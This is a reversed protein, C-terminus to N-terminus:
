LKKSYFKECIQTFARKGREKRHRHFLKLGKLFPKPLGKSFGSALIGKGDFALTGQSIGFETM